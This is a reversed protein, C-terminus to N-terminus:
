NQIYLNTYLIFNKKLWHLGIKDTTWDNNLIEFRWDKSLKDFGDTQVIKNKFIIYLLLLYSDACIAEIM